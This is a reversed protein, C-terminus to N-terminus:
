REDHGIARVDGRANEVAKAARKRLSVALARLDPDASSTAHEVIDCIRQCEAVPLGARETWRFVRAVYKRDLDTGSAGLELLAMTADSGFLSMPVWTARSPQRVLAPLLPLLEKRRGELLALFVVDQGGRAEAETESKLSEAVAALGSEGSDVVLRAAFRWAEGTRDGIEDREGSIFDVLPRVALPGRCRLEEMAAAASAAHDSGLWTILSSTSVGRLPRAVDVQRPADDPDQARSSQTGQLTLVGIAIALPLGIRRLATAPARSSLTEPKRRPSCRDSRIKWLSTM